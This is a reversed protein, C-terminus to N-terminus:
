FYKILLIECNIKFLPISQPWKHFRNSWCKIYCWNPYIPSLESGNPRAIIFNQKLPHIYPRLPFVSSKINCFRPSTMNTTISLFMASIHLECIKHKNPVFPFPLYLQITVYNHLPTAWNSLADNTHYWKYFYVTLCTM